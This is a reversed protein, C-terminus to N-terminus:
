RRGKAALWVIRAREVLRAPATRSQALRRVTAREDEELARLQMPM